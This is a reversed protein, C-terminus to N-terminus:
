GRARTFRLTDPGRPANWLTISDSHTCELGAADAICTLVVDCTRLKGTADAYHCAPYPPSITVAVGGAIELATGALRRQATFHQDRDTPRACQQMTHVTGDTFAPPCHVYGVFGDQDLVLEARDGALTLTGTVTWESHSASHHGEGGDVHIPGLQYRTAAPPTSAVPRPAPAGACAAVLVLVLYALSKM